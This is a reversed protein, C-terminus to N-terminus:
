VVYHTEASVCEQGLTVADVIVEIAFCISNTSTWSALASMGLWSTSSAAAPLGVLRGWFYIDNRECPFRLPPAICTALNKLQRSRVALLNQFASFTFERTPHVKAPTKDINSMSGLSESLPLEQDRRKKGGLSTTFCEVAEVVAQYGALEASAVEPDQMGSRLLEQPLCDM